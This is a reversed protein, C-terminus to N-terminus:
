DSTFSCKMMSDIIASGESNSDNGTLTTRPTGTFHKQQSIEDPTGSQYAGLTCVSTLVRDIM